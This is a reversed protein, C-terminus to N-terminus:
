AITAAPTALGTAWIMGGSLLGRPLLLPRVPAALRSAEDPRNGLGAALVILSEVDM